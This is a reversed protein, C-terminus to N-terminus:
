LRQGRFLFWLSFLYCFFLCNIRTIDSHSGINEVHHRVDGLLDSLENGRGLDKEKGSKPILDCFSM